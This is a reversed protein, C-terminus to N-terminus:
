ENVKESEYFFEALIGGLDSSWFEPGWSFDVDRLYLFEGKHINYSWFLNWLPWLLEAGLIVKFEFGGGIGLTKM